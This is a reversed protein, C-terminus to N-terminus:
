TLMTAVAIAISGNVILMQKFLESVGANYSQESKALLICLLGYVLCQLMHYGNWSEVYAHSLNRM